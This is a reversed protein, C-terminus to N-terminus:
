RPASWAVVGAAVANGANDATAARCIGGHLDGREGVALANGM